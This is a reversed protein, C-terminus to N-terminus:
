VTTVVFNCEANVMNVRNLEKEANIIEFISFFLYFSLFFFTAVNLFATKDEYGSAASAFNAGYLLNEGTAQPSLYAPPYKTFGM